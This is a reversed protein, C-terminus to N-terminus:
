PALVLGCGSPGILCTFSGAEVDLDIADVAARGGFRKTLGRVRLAIPGATMAAAEDKRWLPAGM